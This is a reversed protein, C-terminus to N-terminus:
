NAYTVGANFPNIDISRREEIASEVIRMKGTRPFYNSVGAIYSSTPAKYQEM